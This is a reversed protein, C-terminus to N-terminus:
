DCLLFYRSVILSFLSRVVYYLLTALGLGVQVNAMTILANLAFRPQGSLPLRRAWLYYGWAVSYTAIALARHNFQVAAPNETLNKWKPEQEWYEVPTFRKDGM